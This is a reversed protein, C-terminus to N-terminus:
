DSHLCITFCFSLNELVEILIIPLKILSPIIEVVLADKNKLTTM